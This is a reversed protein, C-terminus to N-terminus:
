KAAKHEATGKVESAPKYGDETAIIKEDFAPEPKVGSDESTHASSSHTPDNAALSAEVQEDTLANPVIKKKTTM